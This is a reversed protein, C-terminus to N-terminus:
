FLHRIGFAIGTSDTGATATIGGLYWTDGGLRSGVLGNRLVHRM